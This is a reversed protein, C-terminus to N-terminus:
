MIGSLVDTVVLVFNYPEESDDQATTGIAEAYLGRRDVCADSDYCCDLVLRLTAAERLGFM